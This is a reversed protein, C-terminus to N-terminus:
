SPAPTRELEPPGAGPASRFGLRAGAQTARYSLHKVSQQREIEFGLLEAVSDSLILYPGKGALRFARLKDSKILGRVTRDSRHIAEAVQAVTMTAPLNM